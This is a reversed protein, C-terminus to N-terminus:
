RRNRVDAEGTLELFWPGSVSSTLKRTDTRSLLIDASFELIGTNPLVLNWFRDGLQLLFPCSLSIPTLSIQGNYIASAGSAAAQAKIAVQSVGDALFQFSDQPYEGVVGPFVGKVVITSASVIRMNDADAATVTGELGVTWNVQYLGAPPNGANAIIAGAGPNTPNGSAVIPALGNATPGTVIVRKIREYYLEYQPQLTVSTVAAAVPGQTVYEDVYLAQEEARRALVRLAETFESQSEALFGPPLRQPEDAVGIPEPETVRGIAM